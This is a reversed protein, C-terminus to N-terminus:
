ALASADEGAAVGARQVSGDHRVLDLVAADSWEPAIDDVIRQSLSELSESEDLRREALQLLARGRAAPIPRRDADRVVRLEVEPTGRAEDAVPHQELERGISMYRELPLFRACGPARIDANPSAPHTWRRPWAADASETPRVSRVSRLVAPLPGRPRCLDASRNCAHPVGVFRAWCAYKRCAAPMSKPAYM